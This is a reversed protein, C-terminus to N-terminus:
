SASKPSSEPAFDPERFPNIFNPTFDSQSQAKEKAKAESDKVVVRYDDVEVIQNRSITLEPDIFSKLLPRQVVLQQLQWNESNIISDSVKGLKNGKKTEVKLGNLNFNLAIVDRIHVVENADVLEDVSDIIMGLRSFERISAVPLVDGVEGKGVLAGEVRFAIVKLSNPDFIVEVVSAIKGGVHLSLVPCNNLRSANILM